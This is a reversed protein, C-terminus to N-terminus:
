NNCCCKEPNEWVGASAAANFRTVTVSSHSRPKHLKSARTHILATWDLLKIQSLAGFDRFGLDLFKTRVFTNTVLHYKSIILLNGQNHYLNAPDVVPGGGQLLPM